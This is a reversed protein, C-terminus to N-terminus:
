WGHFHRPFAFDHFVMVNITVHTWFVDTDCRKLLFLGDGDCPWVFEVMARITQQNVETVFIRFRIRANNQKARYTEVKDVNKYFWNHISNVLITFLTFKDCRCTRLLGDTFNLSFFQHSFTRSTQLGSSSISYPFRNENWPCWTSKLYFQNFEEARDFTCQVERWSHYRHFVWKRSNLKFIWCWGISIKTVGGAAAWFMALPLASLQILAFRALFLSIKIFIAQGSLYLFFSIILM